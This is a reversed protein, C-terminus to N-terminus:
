EEWTHQHLDNYERVPRWGSRHTIGENDTWFWCTREKSAMVLDNSSKSSMDFKGGRTFTLLIDRGEADETIGVLPYAGNAGNLSVMRIEKGDCFVKEGRKAAELDFPKM